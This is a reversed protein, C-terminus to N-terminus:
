KVMALTKIKGLAQLFRLSVIFKIHSPKTTSIGKGKKYEAVFNNVKNKMTGLSMMLLKDTAEQSNHWNNKEKLEKIYVEVNPHLL